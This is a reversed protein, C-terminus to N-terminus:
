GPPSVPSILGTVRNQPVKIPKALAHRCARNRLREVFSRARRGEVIPRAPRMALTIAGRNQSQEIQTFVDTGLVREVEAGLLLTEAPLGNAFVIEHRDLAFHIYRVPGTAPRLAIGHLGTLRRAAILIEDSGYMRRAIRSRLLVRHQQSLLLPHTPMSPAFSHAPIVVPAVGHSLLQTAVGVRRTGIWRIPQSGHDLTQVLDGIALTEVPRAGKPTAIRTGAAFCIFNTQQRNAAIYTTDVSVSDLSVSVIAKAEMAVWDDNATMEPALYLDGDTTQIVVATINATSGDAYTLTANYVVGSDLTHAVGDVTMADPSWFDYNDSNIDTDDDADNVVVDVIHDYLPDGPSGYSGLINSAGEAYLDGEYSDIDGANGLYLANWSYITM